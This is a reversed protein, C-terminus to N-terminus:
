STLSDYHIRSCKRIQSCSTFLISRSLSLLIFYFLFVLYLYLIGCLGGGIWSLLQSARDKKIKLFQLDVAKHKQGM